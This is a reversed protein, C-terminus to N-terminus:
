FNERDEITYNVGLLDLIIRAEYIAGDRLGAFYADGAHNGTESFCRDPYIEEWTLREAIGILDKVEKEELLKESDVKIYKKIEDFM